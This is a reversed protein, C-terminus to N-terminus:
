KTQPKTKYTYDASVDFSVYARAWFKKGCGDEYNDCMFQHLQSECGSPDANMFNFAFTERQEEGCHPCQVYSDFEEM